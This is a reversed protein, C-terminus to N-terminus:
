PEHDPSHQVIDTRSRAYPPVEHADQAPAEGHAVRPLTALLCLATGALALVALRILERNM